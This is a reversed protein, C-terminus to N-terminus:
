NVFYLEAPTKYGLSEHLRINNYRYIYDRINDEADWVSQYDKLYVEDYKLTRWFRETFINDFCRGKHDMSIKTRDQDWLGIYDNDTFQVGQDSNMIEPIGITLAEKAAQLVFDTTLTNSLKWSVVYRSYWDLFAVLYVFGGHLRIYTIDTGWVHNPRSSKVGKLLYPFVPHEHNNLSLNPKQYIAEIAMQEMLSGTRKRGIILGTDRRLRAAMTRAGYTPWDTHIKDIRHMLDLTQPDVPVPQYYLSGRSIGLLKTQETLSLQRYTPDIFQAAIMNPTLNNM